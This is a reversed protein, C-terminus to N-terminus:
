FPSSFIDASNESVRCAVAVVSHTHGESTLVFTRTEAVHTNPVEPGISEAVTADEIALGHMVRPLALYTVGVFVVDINSAQKPGRPSRLLLSGHSVKYEWLQFRRDPHYAIM